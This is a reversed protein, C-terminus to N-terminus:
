SPAGASHPLVAETSTEAVPLMHGADAMLDVFMRAVSMADEVDKETHGGLELVAEASVIEIADPEWDPFESRLRVDTKAAGVIDIMEGDAPVVFAHILCTAEVDDDFYTAIGIPLGTLRHLAVAFVDCM